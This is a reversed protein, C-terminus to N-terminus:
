EVRKMAPVELEAPLFLGSEVLDQMYQVAKEDSDVDITNGDYYGTYSYVPTNWDHKHLTVWYMGSRWTALRM